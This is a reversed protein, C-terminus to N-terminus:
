RVERFTLPCASSTDAAMRLSTDAGFRLVTDAGSSKPSARPSRSQGSRLPLPRPRVGPQPGPRDAQAIQEHLQSLSVDHREREAQLEARVEELLREAGGARQDASEMGTQAKAIEVVQRSM